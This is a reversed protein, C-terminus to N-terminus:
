TRKDSTRMRASDICSLLDEGAVPKSLFCVAGADMARSQTLRDPFATVFIIPINFGAERIKSQLHLGSMGTLEVDTILCWTNKIDASQLFAEASFFAGAAFGHSKLFAVMAECVSVDDDVCAIRSVNSM